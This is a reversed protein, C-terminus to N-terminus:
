KRLNIMKILITIGAALGVVFGMITFWPTKTGVWGDLYQGIFAGALVSFALEFGLAIYIM